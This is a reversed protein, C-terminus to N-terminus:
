DKAQDISAQRMRLATEPVTIAMGLIFWLFRTYMLEHMLSMIAFTAFVGLTVNNIIRTEVTAHKNEKALTCIVIGFFSAFIVFGVMGTEALLFVPTSDIVDLFKGFVKPEEAQTTGLGIGFIPSKVWLDLALGNVKVRLMDSKFNVTAQAAAEQQRDSFARLMGPLEVFQVNQHQKFIFNTRYKEFIFQHYLGALVTIIACGLAFSPVITKFFYSRRIFLFTCMQLILIVWCSRSGIQIHMLPLIFWYFREVWPSLLPKASLGYFFVMVTTCLILFGFANRNAMWGKYPYAILGDIIHFDQFTIVISGITGLILAFITFVRFFKYIKIFKVNHALWAGWLFYAILVFWGAIKNKLGWAPIEGQHVTGTYLAILLAGTMAALWYYTHETKYDPWDSQKKFLSILILVGAVPLLLDTLNLRLGAYTATEFVDMQVQLTCAALLSLCILAKNLHSLQFTM